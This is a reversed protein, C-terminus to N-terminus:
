GAPALGALYQGAREVYHDAIWTNNAIDEPRMERVVKGPSGMVVSNDPIVKGEPILAGAAILCNRGIVARNLVIAGIGILANEHVTCGHLMALHGVSVNRHLVCPVGGDTHIVAGDQVNVNEGIEIHDNDGRITAGWWVSTGRGLTVGGIVAANPAIFNGGQLLPTREGLRYIM